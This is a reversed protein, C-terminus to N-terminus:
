RNKKEYARNIMQQTAEFPNSFEKLIRFADLLSDESRDGVNMRAEIAKKSKQPITDYMDEVM